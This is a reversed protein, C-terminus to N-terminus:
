DELIKNLRKRIHSKYDEPNSFMGFHIPKIVDGKSDAFVIMPLRTRSTFQSYVRTELDRLIPFTFGIKKAYDNIEKNSVERPSDISVWLFKVSRNKYERQLEELAKLESSCPACWTAGFSILLVNGKLSQLEFAHDKLDTFKINNTNAPTEPSYQSQALVANAAIVVFLLCSISRFFRLM